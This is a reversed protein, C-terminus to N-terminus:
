KLIQPEDSKTVKIMPMIGKEYVQLTLKPVQYPFKQIGGNPHIIKLMWETNIIKITGDIHAIVQSGDKFFKILTNENKYTMLGNKFRMKSTMKEKNYDCEKEHNPFYQSRNGNKFFTIMYGDPYIWTKKLKPYIKEKRGSKYIRKIIGGNEIQEYVIKDNMLMKKDHYKKDISFDYKSQWKKATQIIHQKKFTSKREMKPEEFKYLIVSDTYLRELSSGRSENIANNETTRHLDHLNISLFKNPSKSVVTNRHIFKQQTSKKNLNEQEHEQDPHTFSSYLNMASKFTDLNQLSGGHITTRIKRSIPTSKEEEAYLTCKSVNSHKRDKKSNIDLSEDKWETIKYLDTPSDLNGIQFAVKHINNESNTKPLRQNIPARPKPANSTTNKTYLKQIKDEQSKFFLNMYKDNDTNPLETIESKIQKKNHFRL